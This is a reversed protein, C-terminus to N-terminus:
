PVTDQSLFIKLIFFFRVFMGIFPFIGSESFILFLVFITSLHLKKKSTRGQRIGEM